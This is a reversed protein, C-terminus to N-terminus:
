SSVDKIMGDTLQVFGEPPAEHSNAMPPPRPGVVLGPQQQALPAPSLHPTARRVSTAGDLQPDAAASRGKHQSRRQDNSPQSGDMQFRPPPRQSQDMRRKTTRIGEGKSYSKPLDKRKKQIFDASGNSSQPAASSNVPQSLRDSKAEQPVEFAFQLHLSLWICINQQKGAQVGEGGDVEIEEEDEEEDGDGDGYADVEEGGDGDGYEEEEGEQEVQQQATPPPPYLLLIETFLRKITEQSTEQSVVEAVWSSVDASKIQNLLYCYKLEQVGKPQGGAQALHFKKLM